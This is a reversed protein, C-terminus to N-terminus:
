QFLQTKETMATALMCGPRCRACRHAPVNQSPDPWRGRRETRAPIRGARAIFGCDLRAGTGMLAATIRESTRRRVREPKDPVPGHFASRHVCRAWGAPRIVPALWVRAAQVPCPRSCSTPRRRWSPAGSRRPSPRSRSLDVSGDFWNNRTMRSRWLTPLPRIRRPTKGVRACHQHFPYGLLACIMDVDFAGSAKERTTMSEWSRSAFHCRV